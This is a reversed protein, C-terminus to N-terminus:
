RRRRMAAFGGLGFLAAAGPAPVLQSSGTFAASGALSMLGEGDEEGVLDSLAFSATQRGGLTVGDDLLALLADGATLQLSGVTTNGAVAGSGEIQGMFNGLLLTAVADDFVGSLITVPGGGSVDEFVFEGLINAVLLGPQDVIPAGDTTVNLTLRTEAFTTDAIEGADSTLSLSVTESFSYAFTFSDDVNEQISVEREPGPDQFTFFIAGQAVACPLGIAAALAAVSCKM